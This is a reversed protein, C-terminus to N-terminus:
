QGAEAKAARADAALLNWVASEEARNAVSAGARAQEVRDKALRAGFRVATWDNYDGHTDDALQIRRDATEGLLAIIQALDDVLRAEILLRSFRARDLAGKAAATKVALRGWAAERALTRYRSWSSVAVVILGAAYVVWSSVPVGPDGNSRTLLKPGAVVFLAALLLSLAGLATGFAVLIRAVSAPLRLRTPTM